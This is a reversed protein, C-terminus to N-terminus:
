GLFLGPLGGGWVCVGNVSLVYLLLLRNMNMRRLSISSFLPEPYLSPKCPPAPPNHLAHSPLWHVPQVAHRRQDHADRLACDCSGSAFSGGCCGGLFLLPFLFPNAAALMSADSCMQMAWLFGLLYGLFNGLFFMPPKSLTFGAPFHGPYVVTSLSLNRATLTMPRSNHSHATVDQM